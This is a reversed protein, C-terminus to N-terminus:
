PRFGYEYTAPWRIRVIGSGGQGSTGASGNANVGGGGGGGGYKGGAGGQGSTGASGNANVGGGGGGGGGAGGGGGESHNKRNMDVGGGGGGGFTGSGGGGGGGGKYGPNGPFGNSGDSGGNGHNARNLDQGLGRGGAGGGGGSPGRGGDGGRSGGTVSLLGGTTTYSGGTGGGQFTGAGGGYAVLNLASSTGGAGGVVINYNQFKEVIRSDRYVYGGGGGGSHGGGNGGGGVCLVNVFQVPATWTYTGPVDFIVEGTLPYVIMSYRVEAFLGGPDTARITFIYINDTNPAGSLVSGNISLGNPLTGSVHTYELENSPTQVDSFNISMDYSFNTNVTTNNLPVRGFIDFPGITTPPNNPDIYLSYNQTVSQGVQDTATISFNFTGGVTPTGFLVFWRTQTTMGAPLTGNVVYQLDITSTRDDNFNQEVNYEFYTNVRGTLSVTGGTATPPNDKIITLQYDQTSSQGGTDTARITFNYTGPINPTGSMNQNSIFLGNPLTGSVHTYVLEEPEDLDDQFNQGLNYNFSTLEYQSTLTVTGGTSV